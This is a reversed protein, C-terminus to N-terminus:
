KRREVAQRLEEDSIGNKNLFYDLETAIDEVLERESEALKGKSKVYKDLYNFVNNITILSETRYKKEVRTAM